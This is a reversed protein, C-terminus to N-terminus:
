PPGSPDAMFGTLMDVWLGLAPPVSVLLLALAGFTLAPAGVLSVMLMPMARNIVGIAINYILAAALFPSALAVAIAFAKAAMGTGWDSLSLAAPIDGPPFHDYSRILAVAAQVHLGAAVAAALGGFLLLHSVAPMPDEDAFGILQSVSTAQAVIAGATQLAFVFARVGLGLALGFAAEALVLPLTLGGAALLPSLDTAVAPAVIATFALAAALRVRVPLLREGFAPLAAMAAGTRLFVLFALM